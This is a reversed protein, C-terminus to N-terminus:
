ICVTPKGILFNWIHIFNFIYIANLIYNILIILYFNIINLPVINKDYNKNFLIVVM